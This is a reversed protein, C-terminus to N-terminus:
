KSNISWFLLDSSTTYECAYAKLGNNCGKQVNKNIISTHTVHAARWLLLFITLDAKGLQRENDNANSENLFGIIVMRAISRYTIPPPNYKKLIIIKM